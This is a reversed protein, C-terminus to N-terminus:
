GRVKGMKLNTGYREAEDRIEGCPSAIITTWALLMHLRKPQAKWGCIEM